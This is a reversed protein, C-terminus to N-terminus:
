CVHSPLTMNSRVKERAVQDELLSPGVFNNKEDVVKLWHDPDSVPAGYDTTMHQKSEGDKIDRQLDAVKKNEGVSAVSDAASRMSDAITSAM